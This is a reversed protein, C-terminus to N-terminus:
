VRNLYDKYVIQFQSLLKPLEKYKYDNLKKKLYSSQECWKNIRIIDAKTKGDKQYTWNMQWAISIIKKRMVDCPDPKKEQSQLHKILADVEPQTLEKTSDTRDNTIGLIIEKKNQKHWPTMLAHIKKYQQLTPM